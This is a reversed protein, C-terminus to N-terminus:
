PFLGMKALLDLLHEAKLRNLQQHQPSKDSVYSTTKIIDYNYQSVLNEMAKASDGQMRSACVIVEFSTKAWIELQKFLADGDDGASQLGCRKGNATLELTFDDTPHINGYTVACKPALLNALERIIGTKGQKATGRVCIITKM